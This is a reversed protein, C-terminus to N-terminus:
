GGYMERPDFNLVMDGWQAFKDRPLMTYPQCQLVARAAADSAAPFGPAASSSAVEPPRALSGDQNFRLRLKVAISEAGLGGIPPSWCRSIAARFADIENASMTADRGEPAGLTQDELSAPARGRAKPQAADPAGGADPQKNLLAAIKDPDFNRPKDRTKPADPQPKLLEAIRDPKKPEPQKPEPKAQAPKIEAPKAAEPKVEAQKVAPKPPEPKPPEPKPPPPPPPPASAAVAPPAPKPEAARPPAPPPPEKSAVAQKPPAQTEAKGARSGERLQSFESPSIIDVPTPKQEAPEHTDGAFGLLAAGLVAAHLGASLIFSSRAM